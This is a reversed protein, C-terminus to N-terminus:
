NKVNDSMLFLVINNNKKKLNDLHRIGSTGEDRPVLIGKVTWLWAGGSKIRPTSIQKVTWLWVTATNGVRTATIQKVPLAM